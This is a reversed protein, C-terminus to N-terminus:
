HDLTTINSLAEPIQINLRQLTKKNIHLRLQQEDHVQEAAMPKKHLFEGVLTITQKAIYEPTPLYAGLFGAKVLYNSYVLTPKNNELATTVLYKYSMSNIVIPDQIFIFAEVEPLLERFVSPVEKPTTITKLLVHLNSANKAENIEVKMNSMYKEEAILGVKKVEPLFKELIHLQQAIDPKDSVEYLNKHSSLSLKVSDTMTYIINISNLQDIALQTAPTGLTMVTANAPVTIQSQISKVITNSREKKGDLDFEKIIINHSNVNKISSIVQDIAPLSKTKIIYLTHTNVEAQVPSSGITALTLMAICLLTAFQNM